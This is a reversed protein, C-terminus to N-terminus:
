DVKWGDDLVAELSLYSLSELMRLHAEFNEPRKTPADGVNGFYVTAGHGFALFGRLPLGDPGRREGHALAFMVSLPWHKPRKMLALAFGRGDMPNRM